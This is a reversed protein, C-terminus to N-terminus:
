EGGCTWCPWCTSRTWCRLCRWRRWCFLGGEVAEPMCFVVCRMVEPVELLCLEGQVDELMCPLVCYMVELVELVSGVRWRRWCVTLVCRMVEPVELVELYGYGVEM